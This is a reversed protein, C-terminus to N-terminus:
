LDDVYDTLQLHQKLFVYLVDKQDSEAVPIGAPFLEMTPFTAEWAHLRPQYCLGMAGGFGLTREIPQLSKLRAAKSAYANFEFQTYPVGNQTTFLISEICWYAQDFDEFLVNDEKPLRMIIGM